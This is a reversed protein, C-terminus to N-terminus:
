LEMLSWVQVKLWQAISGGRTLADKIQIELVKSSQFFWLRRCIVRKIITEISTM